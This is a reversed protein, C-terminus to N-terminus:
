IIYGRLAKRTPHEYASWFGRHPHAVPTGPYVAYVKSLPDWYSQAFRRSLAVTERLKLRRHAHQPPERFSWLPSLTVNCRPRKGAYGLALYNHENRRGISRRTLDALGRHDLSRSGYAAEQEGM